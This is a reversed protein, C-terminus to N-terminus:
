REHGKKAPRGGRRVPEPAYEIVSRTGSQRSALAEDQQTAADNEADQADDAEGPSAPATATVTVREAPRGLEQLAANAYLKDAAPGGDGLDFMPRAESPKMVGHEILQGVAVARKEFDGRLVEDLAFRAEAEGMLAFEPRVYFEIVSEYEALRPTMTDRYLSRMQETINSFTARDLIHVVPPPVDIVGCAEERDLKRQNIYDMEVPTFQIPIPKAGEELLLTGGANDPGGHVKGIKSELRTYARDSLAKDTSIMLAPRAGKTWASLQARRSADENILTSNLPELQSLGRMTDDPNFTLFPVVETDRVALMGASAVGLTFVYWIEWEGTVENKLRHVATRSPHMPYFGIIAKTIPNRVKLWFTEGYIEFTSVTWRWFRFVDMSPCPRMWLRAYPSSQDLLRADGSKDWAMFPLRSTSRALKNILAFIWPQRRYIEGYAAYKGALALGQQAYWYGNSASIPTTEALAQPAFDLAKGGSIIM